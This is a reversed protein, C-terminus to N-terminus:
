NIATYLVSLHQVEAHISALRMLNNNRILSAVGGYRHCGCCREYRVSCNYGRLVLTRGTSPGRDGLVDDRKDIDALVLM